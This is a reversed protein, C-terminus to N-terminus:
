HRRQPAARRADSSTSATQRLVWLFLATLPLVKFAHQILGAGVSMGTEKTPDAFLIYPTPIALLVAIWLVFRSRYTLALVTVVPLLMVYHYEWVDKFIMFFVLTWLALQLNMDCRPGHRWTSWAASALVALMMVFIPVNGMYVDFIRFDLKIGSISEPMVWGLTRVFASAGLTGGHIGPPLPRFNLLLFQRLDEPRAIYYPASVLAVIGACILVPKWYGRRLYPIGFLATYTKVGVSVVWAWLGRGRPRERGRDPMGERMLVWLCAAMLFSFQGMWQELYFPFFGLWIGALIMRERAPYARMRLIWLVILGLLIETTIVWAVYATHPEMVLSVVAAVYATPPLYRYFYFYPVRRHAENRYDEADYISLGHVLNDGGTYIGYYDGAQGAVQEAEVYLPNLFQTKLSILFLLHVIIGALM